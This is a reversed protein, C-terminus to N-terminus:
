KCKQYIQEIQSENFYVFREDEDGDFPVLRFQKGDYFQPDKFCRLDFGCQYKGRYITMTEGNDDRYTFYYYRNQRLDDLTKIIFKDVKNNFMDETMNRADYRKETTFKSFLNDVNNDIMEKFM